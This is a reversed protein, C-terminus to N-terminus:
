LSPFSSHPFRPPVTQYTCSSSLQSSSSLCRSWSSIVFFLLTHSCALPYPFASQTNDLFIRFSPFLFAPFYFPFLFRFTSFDFSLHFSFQFNLFTTSSSSIFPLLTCFVLSLSPSFLATPLPSESIQFAVKVYFYDFLSTIFQFCTIEFFWLGTLFCRLYPCGHLILMALVSVLPEICPSFGVLLDIHAFAIVSILVFKFGVHM